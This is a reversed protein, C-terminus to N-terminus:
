KELEPVGTMEPRLGALQYAEILAGATPGYRPAIMQACGDLEILMRFRERLRESRFVGGIAAVPVADGDEFLQRRVAASILALSQAAGNLIELAIADGAAAADDVLRSFGAVRPRPFDSTYFLHVLENASSVGTADL